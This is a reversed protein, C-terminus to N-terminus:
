LLFHPFFVRRITIILTNLPNPYPGQHDIGVVEIMHWLYNPRRISSWLIMGIVLTLVVALYKKNQANKGFLYLLYAILLSYGLVGQQVYYGFVPMSRMPLFQIISHTAGNIAVMISFIVLSFTDSFASSRFTKKIVRIFFSYFLIFVAGALYRWFFVYNYYTLGKQNELFDTYQYLANSTIFGPPLFNTLTVYLNTFYNSIVDDVARWLFDKGYFLVLASEGSDHAFSTYTLTITIYIVFVINFIAFVTFLSRIYQTLKKKRFYIYLFLTILWISALFDLWGEYYIATLLLVPIIGMMYWRQKGQSRIFEYSFYLLLLMLAQMLLFGTIGSYQFAHYLHTGFGLCIAVVYSFIQSHFVKWSLFFATLMLFGQYVYWVGATGIINEFFYVLILGFPWNNKFEKIPLMLQWWKYTSFVKITEDPYVNPLFHQLYRGANVLKHWLFYNAALLLPLWVWYKPKDKFEKRTYAFLILVEWFLAYGLVAYPMLFHYLPIQLTDALVFYVCSFIALSGIVFLILIFPLTGQEYIYRLVGGIKSNKIFTLVFAFLSISAILIAPIFFANRYIDVGDPLESNTGLLIFALCVQIVILLSVWRVKKLISNEM